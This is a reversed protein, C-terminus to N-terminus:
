GIPSQGLAERIGFIIEGAARLSEPNAGYINLMTPYNETMASRYPSSTVVIVPKGAGEIRKIFETMERNARHGIWNTVVVVDVEPLRREVRKWNDEDTGALEVGYINPSIDSVIEWFIQPHCNISNFFTHTPHIREAILVKTDSKLPILNNRNELVTAHQAVEKEIDIIAQDFQPAAAKAPDVKGGNKFLGYDYKLRLVRRNAEELREEPLTGNKVNELMTYFIEEAIAGENRLLILDQGAVIAKTAAEAVEYQNVIGGMFINDTTIVGDYGLKERLLGTIIKHSVTAPVRSDDLAPYITHAIMIAPLGAEILKKYPKIHTDMMEELSLDVTLCDNHADGESEGRGPFHKGTAILGEKIFGKLTALAYTEVTDPNDSYARDGIEPNNPNTNVDVVPSHIWDIGAAKMQKAIAEGSKEVLDPRGTSALGMPTPFLRVSGLSYNESGNGEQDLVTHIPIGLPRSLALDRLKNLTEAYEQPSCYPAHYELFDKIQGYPKRETRDLIRQSTEDSAETVYMPKGRIVTNVRLGAVHFEKIIKHTFPTIVTGMFDMVLCGGLKQEITMQNIINDIFEERKEVDTM